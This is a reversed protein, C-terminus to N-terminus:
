LKIVLYSKILIHFKNTSQKIVLYCQILMHILHVLNM